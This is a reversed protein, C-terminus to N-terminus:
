CTHRVPPLVIVDGPFLLDPDDLGPNALIVQRWYREISTDDAPTGLRAALETEAIAWLHDGPAAVHQRDPVAEEVHMTVIGSPGDPASGDPAGDGDGPGTATAPVVAATATGAGPELVQMVATGPAPSAAVRATPTALAAAATLGIGALRRTTTRLPPPTLRDACRVLGPREIVRGVLALVQTGLLHYCAVLAALRVTAFGLAVPDTRGIWAGWAGPSSLSPATLAEPGALHLLVVTTVLAPLVTHPPLDPPGATLTM